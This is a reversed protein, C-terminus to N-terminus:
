AVVESILSSTGGQLPHARCKLNVVSTQGTTLIHHRTARGAQVLPPIM